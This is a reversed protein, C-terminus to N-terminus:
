LVGFHEFVKPVIASDSDVFESNKIKEKIEEPTCWGYDSHETLIFRPNKGDSSLKVHFSDLSCEKDKHFFTSHSIKELVCVEIGFEEKMERKIATEFDEGEDLKGGPFEWRGGMDGKCIRKAVFFKNNEFVICAISSSM